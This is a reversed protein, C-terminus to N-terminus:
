GTPAHTLLDHEKDNFAQVVLRSKIFANPAGANKVTDVFRFGCIRHANAASPPTHSFLGRTLLGDLEQSPSHCFRIHFSAAEM